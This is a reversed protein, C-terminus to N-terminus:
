VDAIGLCFYLRDCSPEGDPLDQFDLSAIARLWVDGMHSGASAPNSANGVAHSLRQSDSPSM